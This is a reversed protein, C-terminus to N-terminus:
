ELTEDDVHPVATIGANALADELTMGNGLM